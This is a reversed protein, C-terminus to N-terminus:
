YEVLLGKDRRLQQSEMDRSVYSTHQGDKKQTLLNNVKDSSWDELKNLVNGQSNLNKLHAQVLKLRENAASM